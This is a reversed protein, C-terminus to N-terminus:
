RSISTLLWTFEPLIPLFHSRRIYRPLPPPRFIIPIQRFDCMNALKGLPVSPEIIFNIQLYFHLIFCGVAIIGEHDLILFFLVLLWQDKNLPTSKGQVGRDFGPINQKSRSFFLSKSTKQKSCSSIM